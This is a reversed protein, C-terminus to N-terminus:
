EHKDNSKDPTASLGIIRRCNTANDLVNYFYNAGLRHCEDIIVNEFKNFFDKLDPKCFTQITGIYVTNFVNM